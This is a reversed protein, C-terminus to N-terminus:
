SNWLYTVNRCMNMSVYQQLVSYDYNPLCDGKGGGGEKWEGGGGGWGQDISGIVTKSTM